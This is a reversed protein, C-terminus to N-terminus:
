NFLKRGLLVHQGDATRSSNGQGAQTTDVVAVVQVHLHGTVVAGLQAQGLAADRGGPLPVDGDGLDDTWTLM